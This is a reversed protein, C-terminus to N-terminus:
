QRKMAAMVSREKGGMRRSGGNQIAYLSEISHKKRKITQSQTGMHWDIPTSPLISRRGDHRKKEEVFCIYISALHFLCLLRWKYKTKNIFFFPVILGPLHRTTM